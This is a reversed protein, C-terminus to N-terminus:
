GVKGGEWGGSGGVQACGGMGMLRARREWRVGGGARVKIGPLAFLFLITLRYTNLPNLPPM